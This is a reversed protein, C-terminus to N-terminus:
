QRLKEVAEELVILRSDVADLLNRCDLVTELMLRRHIEESTPDPAPDSPEGNPGYTVVQRSAADFEALIEEAKRPSM